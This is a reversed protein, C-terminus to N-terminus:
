PEHEDDAARETSVCVLEAEGAALVLGAVRRQELGRQALCLFLDPEPPALDRDNGLERWDVRARGSEAYL